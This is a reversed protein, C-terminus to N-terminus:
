EKPSEGLTAFEVAEHTAGKLEALLIGVFILGAGFFERGTLHEGAVLWGLIAAFVPELSFVIATHSPTTYRQAWFQLAFALATSIVAAYVLAWALGANMNIRPFERHLSTPMGLAGVSLVTTTAAQVTNLAAVSHRRAWTGAAIIHLAFAIACFAILVDGRNLGGLGEAPVAVFYLGAFAALAGSCIWANMRVRGFTASILPVWVVSSGTIFAAKSASTLGLGATELAYGAFMLVGLLMGARLMGPTRRRLAALSFAALFLTALGFRLALFVFVSAHALAGKVVIFSGGWVLACVLLALDAQLRRKV